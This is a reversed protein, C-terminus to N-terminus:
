PFLQLVTLHMMSGTMEHKHSSGWRGQLWAILLLCQKHFFGRFSKPVLINKSQFHLIHIWETCIYRQFGQSVQNMESTPGTWGYLEPALTYCHPANTLHTSHLSLCALHSYSGDASSRSSMSSSCGALRCGPVVSSSSNGSGLCTHWWYCPLGIRQHSHSISQILKKSLVSSKMLMSQHLVAKRNCVRHMKVTVQYIWHSLLIHYYLQVTSLATHSSSTCCIGACQLLSLSLFHHTSNYPCESYKHLWVPNEVTDFDAWTQMETSAVRKYENEAATKPFSSVSMM